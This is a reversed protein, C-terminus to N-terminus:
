QLGQYSRKAPVTVTKALADARGELRSTWAKVQSNLVGPDRVSLGSLTRAMQCDFAQRLSRPDPHTDVAACAIAQLCVNQAHLSYIAESMLRLQEQLAVIAKVVDNEEAM